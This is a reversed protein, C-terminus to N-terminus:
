HAPAPMTPSSLVSLQQRLALCPRVMLMAPESQIPLFGNRVYFALLRERDTGAEPEVCLFLMVAALDAEVTTELMLAAADGQGRKAVETRLARLEVIPGRMHEPLARPKALILRAGGHRREGYTM